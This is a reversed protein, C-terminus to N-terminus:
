LELKVGLGVYQNKYNRFSRARFDTYNTTRIRSDVTATLILGGELQHEIDFDLNAYKYKIKEGTLGNNDRADINKYDRTLSRFAARVLTKDNDFRLRIGPGYQRFNSRGGMNDIRVFYQYSPRVKFTKSFPLEYYANLNLYDWDRKGATIVDSANFTDYKRKKIHGMIGYNHELNNVEFEQETRFQIGFEDFQLDRIGFKDFDRFNYFAQVTTQNNNRPEFRAGAKLGYNTFGLPNILVDQEGGLGERNMRRFSVEALIRTKRDLDYDYKIHSALSWYSDDINEYFVRARPSASFRIRNKGWINRFDYDLKIDQYISSEILDNATFIQGNFHVEDPSRFYNYEYGAETEAEFSQRVQAISSISLLLTIIITIKTTKM